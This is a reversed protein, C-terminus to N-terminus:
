IPALLHLRKKEGGKRVQHAAGNAVASANERGHMGNHTARTPSSSVPAPGNAAAAAPAQATVNAPASTSAQPQPVDEVSMALAVQLEDEETMVKQVSLSLLKLLRLLSKLLLAKWSM